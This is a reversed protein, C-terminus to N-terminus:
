TPNFLYSLDPVKIITNGFELVHNIPDLFGLSYLKPAHGIKIKTGNGDPNWAETHMLKELRPADVIFIEEFSSGILYVFRLSQSVLRLRLKVLNGQVRLTELVPSRDLIFDLDRTEVLVKCLELERLNPFCAARPHGATCPFKWRGLYLSTLTKMGLITTPLAFDLPSRQRNALVLEHIGKSALIQLWSTLLGPFEDEM